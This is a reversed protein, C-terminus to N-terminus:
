QPGFQAALRASYAKFLRYLRWWKWGAALMATLKRRRAVMLAAVAGVLVPNAALYRFLSVGKDAAALPAQLRRAFGAAEERQLAIRALLEGRRLMIKNMQSNM